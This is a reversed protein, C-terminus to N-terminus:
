QKATSDLPQIKTSDLPATQSTAADQTTSAAIAVWDADDLICGGLSIFDLRLLRAVDPAPVSARQVRATRQIVEVTVLLRARAQPKAQPKLGRHRQARPAPVSAWKAPVSRTTAAAHAPPRIPAQCQRRQSAPSRADPATAPAPPM